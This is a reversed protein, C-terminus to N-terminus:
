AAKGVAMINGHGARAKGKADAGTEANEYKKSNIQNPSILNQLTM